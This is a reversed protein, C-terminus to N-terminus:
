IKNFYRVYFRKRRKYVKLKFLFKRYFLLLRAYPPIILLFFVPIVKVGRCGAQVKIDIVRSNYLAKKIVRGIIKLSIKQGKVIRGGAYAGGRIGSNLLRRSIFIYGAVLGYVSLSLKLSNLM